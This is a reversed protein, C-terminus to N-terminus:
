NLNLHFLFHDIVKRNVYDPFKGRISEYDEGEDSTHTAQQPHHQDNNALLAGKNVLDALEEPHERKLHDLVQQREAFGAPFDECLHCKFPLQHEGQGM